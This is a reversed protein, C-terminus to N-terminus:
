LIARWEEAFQANPPLRVRESSPGVGCAPVASTRARSNRTPSGERWNSFLETFVCVDMELADGARAPLVSAFGASVLGAALCSM